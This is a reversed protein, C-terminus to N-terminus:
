VGLGGTWMELGGTLLGFDGILLGLGGTLLGLDGIMLGLGGTLLGLPLMGGGSGALGGDHTCDGALGWWCPTTQGSIGAIGANVKGAGSLDCPPFGFEHIEVLSPHCIIVGCTIQCDELKGLM